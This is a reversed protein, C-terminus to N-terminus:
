RPFRIRLILATAITVDIAVALVVGAVKTIVSAGPAQIVANVTILLVFAVFFTAM